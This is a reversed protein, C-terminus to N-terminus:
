VRLTSLQVPLLDPPRFQSTDLRSSATQAVSAPSPTTTLPLSSRASAHWLRAPLAKVFGSTDSKAASFEPSSPITCHYGDAIVVGIDLTKFPRTFPSLILTFLVLAVFRMDGAASLM